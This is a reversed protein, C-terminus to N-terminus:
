RYTINRPYLRDGKERQPAFFTVPKVKVADNALM